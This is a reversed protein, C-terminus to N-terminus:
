SRKIYTWIAVIVSKINIFLVKVRDKTTRSLLLSCDDLDHCAGRM